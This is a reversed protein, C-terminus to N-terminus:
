EGARDRAGAETDRWSRILAEVYRRFEDDLSQSEIALRRLGDAVERLTAVNEVSATHRHREVERDERIRAQALLFDELHGTAKAEDCSDAVVRAVLAEAIAREKADDARVLEGHYEKVAEALMGAVQDMADASALEVRAHGACGASVGALAAWGLVLWGGNL